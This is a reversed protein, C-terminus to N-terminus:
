SYEGHLYLIVPYFYFQSDAPRRTLVCYHHLNKGEPRFQELKLQAKSARENNIFIDAFILRGCVSVSDNHSEM